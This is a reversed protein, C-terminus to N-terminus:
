DIDYSDASESFAGSEQRNRPKKAIDDATGGVVRSYEEGRCHFKRM